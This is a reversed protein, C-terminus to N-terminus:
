MPNTPPQSREHAVDLITAVSLLLGVDESPGINLDFEAPIWVRTEDDLKGTNAVQTLRAVPEGGANFDEVCKHFSYEWGWVSAVVYYVAENDRARGKFVRWQERMGLPGRGLVDRNVTFVADANDESDPPMIRFSWRLSSPNWSATTLKFLEHGELGSVTVTKQRFPDSLWSGTLRGIRRFPGSNGEAEEDVEWSYEVSGHCACTEQIRYKSRRGAQSILRPCLPGERPGLELVCPGPGRPPSLVRRAGKPASYVMKQRHEKALGRRQLEALLEEDALASVPSSGESDIREAAM